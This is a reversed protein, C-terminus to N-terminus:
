LARSSTSIIFIAHCLFIFSVVTLLWRFDANLANGANSPVVVVQSLYFLYSLASRRRCTKLSSSLLGPVSSKWEMVMDM